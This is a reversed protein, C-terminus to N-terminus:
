LASTCYFVSLDGMKERRSKREGPDAPSVGVHCWANVSDWWAVAEDFAMKAFALRCKRIYLAFPSARHLRTPNIPSDDDESSPFYIKLDSCTLTHMPQTYHRTSPLCCLSTPLSVMLGDRFKM